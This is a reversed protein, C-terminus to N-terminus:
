LTGRHDVSRFRRDALLEGIADTEVFEIGRKTQQCALDADDISYVAWHWPGQWLNPQGQPVRRYDVILFDPAHDEALEHNSENWEPLVWGIRAERTWRAHCLAPLHLSILICRDIVSDLVQMVRAVVPEIGFQEISESKLEIMASVSELPELWRVFDRLRPIPEGSYQDGFRNREAADFRSLEELTCDVLREPRGSTRQLDVDHYLLPEGDRCIQV